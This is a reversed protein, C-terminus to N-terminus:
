DPQPRNLKLKQPALARDIAREAKEVAEVRTETQGRLEIDDLSVTWKWVNREIGQVVTYEVDKYKM